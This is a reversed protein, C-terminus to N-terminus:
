NGIEVMAGTRASQYAAEGPFFCGCIVFMEGILFSGSLLNRGTVYDLAFARMKM